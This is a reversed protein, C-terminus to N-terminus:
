GGLSEAGGRLVEGTVWEVRNWHDEGGGMGTGGGTGRVEGWNGRVAGGAGGLEGGTGRVGGLAGGQGLAGEGNGM